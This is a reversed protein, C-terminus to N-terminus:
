PRPAAVVSAWVGLVWPEEVLSAVGTLVWM